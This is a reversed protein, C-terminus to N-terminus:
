QGGAARYGKARAQTEAERAQATKLIQSFLDLHDGAVCVLDHKRGKELLWRFWNGSLHLDATLLIKM